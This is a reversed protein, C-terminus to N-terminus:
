KCCEYCLELERALRDFTSRSSFFVWTTSLSVSWMTVNPGIDYTFQPAIKSPGYSPVKLRVFKPQSSPCQGIFNILNFRKPDLPNSEFWTFPKHHTAGYGGGPGVYQANFAHVCTEQEGSPDINDVPDNRVYAYLSHGVDPMPDESIFRGVKPDLYRARFYYLNTEADWERGTFSPGASTAGVELNGWADYQRTAVVAGAANTTAVISHLHDSTFYSVTGSADQMGLWEDMGPGHFYRVTGGPNLREEVIDDDDYVYSHTVGNAVKGVRRGKADYSFSAVENGNLVVRTLRNEANWTYVWTDSGETKTALNGNLDYSYVDGTASVSLTYTKTAINGSADTAQITVTNTGPQMLLDTEFINGALMRAPQGNVTASTFTVTGVENLNGRWHVMGGAASTLLQNQQNYTASLVSSGVQQSLRNGVPDYSFDSHTPTTGSRDVGTLQYLNDYGYGETFDLTQKSTRNSAADYTYTFSTIPTSGATAALTTLRNLVDYGYSTVVSNPYTLSTRRNVEDYGFGFSATGRTITTLRSADDYGYTVFLTGDLSVTLRNGNAEKTVPAPFDSVSAAGGSPCVRARIVAGSYPAM